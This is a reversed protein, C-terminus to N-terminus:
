LHLVAQGDQRAQYNAPSFIYRSLTDSSMGVQDRQWDVHPVEETLKVSATGKSREAAVSM